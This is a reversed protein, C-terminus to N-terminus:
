SEIVLVYFLFTSIIIHKESLFLVVPSLVDNSLVGPSCSIRGTIYRTLLDLVYM